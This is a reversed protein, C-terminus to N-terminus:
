AAAEGLFQKPNLQHRKLLRGLDRREKGSSLAAQTINGRHEKMLRILYDREFREVLAQKMKRFPGLKGPGVLVPQTHQGGDSKIRLHEIEIRSYAAFNIGRLIASELERVNGPWDYSHLHEQVADSLVLPARAPPTHKGLFHLALPLIDEKRERLPPLHITFICLRYYLDKRFTGEKVLHELSANSAAVVRLNARLESTSGIPRYTSDQLVRLLDVQAKLSLTDIEDLFLTGRDAQAVLGQRRSHADTYSGREHGFLEDELLSEPLSGCNVAVFPFSYNDSLYHLARAVLEKGTGTEGLVLTTANSRAIAPLDNLVERFCASNGVLKSLAQSDDM